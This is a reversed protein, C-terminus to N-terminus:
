QLPDRDQITSCGIKGFPTLTILMELPVSINCGEAIVM